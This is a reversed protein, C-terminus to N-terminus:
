GYEASFNSTLLSFEQVADPNPFPLSTNLYTDNHDSGDLQYNVSGGYSPGLLGSGNVNAAEEGPYVGGQGCIRCTNRSSDVTGAALYMLREPKRGNLPLEVIPLQNVVQSGTATRTTVLDTAGSVTVETSIQGVQLAVAINAAQDVVLTIGTQVYSAFGQKEVRLEYSGVPLRPFLFSGTASTMAQTFGTATNRVTINAGPFRREARTPWRAAGM